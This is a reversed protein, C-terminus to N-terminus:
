GSVGPEAFLPRGVPDTEVGLASWSRPMGLTPFPALAKSLIFRISLIPDSQLPPGLLPVIAEVAVLADRSWRDCSM